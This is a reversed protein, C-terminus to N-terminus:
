AAVKLVQDLTGKFHLDREMGLGFRGRFAQLESLLTYGYEDFEPGQASVCWGYLKWDDGVKEAELVYLTYRGCTFYKVLIDGNRRGQTDAGANSREFKTEIAKTLLKM